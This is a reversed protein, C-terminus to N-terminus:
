ATQEMIWRDRLRRLDGRSQVRAFFQSSLEKVFPGLADQLEGLTESPTPEMTPTVRVDRTSSDEFEQPKFDYWCSLVQDGLVAAQITARHNRGTRRCRVPRTDVYQRLVGVTNEIFPYPASFQFTGDGQDTVRGDPTRLLADLQSGRYGTVEEYTHVLRPSLVSALEEALLRREPQRAALALVATRDLVRSRTGVSRHSPTLAAVAGSNSPAVELSFRRVEDATRLGMGVPIWPALLSGSPAGDVLSTVLWRNDLLEDLLPPNLWQIQELSESGRPVSEVPGLLLVAGVEDAPMVVSAGRQRGRERYGSLLLAAGPASEDVGIGTCGGLRVKMRSAVPELLSIWDDVNSARPPSDRLAAAQQDPVWDLMPCFARFRQAVSFFDAPRTPASRADGRLLIVRRGQAIEGLHRVLPRLRTRAAARGGSGALISTFDAGSGGQVGLIRFSGDLAAVCELVLLLPTM